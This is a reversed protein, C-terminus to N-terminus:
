VIQQKVLDEQEEHDSETTPILEPKHNSADNQGGGARNPLKDFARAIALALLSALGSIAFMSQTSVGDNGSSSDGRHMALLAACTLGNMPVRFWNM